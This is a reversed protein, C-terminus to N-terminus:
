QGTLLSLVTDLAVNAGRACDEYSTLEEECHSKGGASPVFIM